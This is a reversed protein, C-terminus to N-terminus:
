QAPVAEPAAEAAAGRRKVEETLLGLQDVGAARM